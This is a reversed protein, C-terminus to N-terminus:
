VKLRAVRSVLDNYDLTMARCAMILNQRMAEQRDSEAFEMLLEKTLSSHNVTITVMLEENVEFFSVEGGETEGLYGLVFGDNVEYIPQPDLGMKAVLAKATEKNLGQALSAFSFHTSMCLNFHEDEDGDNSTDLSTVVEPRGAELNIFATAEAMKRYDNLYM